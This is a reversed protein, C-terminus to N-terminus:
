KSLGRQVTRLNTIREYNQNNKKSNQFVCLNLILLIINLNEQTNQNPECQTTAAAARGIARGGRNRNRICRNQLPSFTRRNARQGCYIRISATETICDRAILDRQM